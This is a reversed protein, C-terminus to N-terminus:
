RTKTAKLTFLKPYFAPGEVRGPPDYGWKCFEHLFDIRLGASALASVVDGLTHHWEYDPLTVMCEPNAYDPSPDDGGDVPEGTKFYDGCLQVQGNEEKIIDLLPHGDAIYFFGGDKLYHAILRAWADLDPLWCVVGYSTYVIDFQGQLHNRLDYLNCCIFEAEVGIQRALSCAASIAEPSIDTGTVRAGLV